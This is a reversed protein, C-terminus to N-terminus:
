APIRTTFTLEYAPLPAAQDPVSLDIPRATVIAGGLAAQAASVLEGLNRNAINRGSNPVVAALRWEADWCNKGFRYTLVPPGVWVAPPNLDREDAAARLGAGTLRAVLADVAADLDM